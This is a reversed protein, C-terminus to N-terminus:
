RSFSATGTNGHNDTVTITYNGPDSVTLSYTTVPVGDRGMITEYTTTVNPSISVISDDSDDTVVISSDTIDEDVIPPDAAGDPVLANRMRLAGTLAGRDGPTDEAFDFAEPVGYSIEGSVTDGDVTTDIVMEDFAVVDFEATELSYPVTDGAGDVHKGEIRFKYTGTEFEHLPEWRVVWEDLGDDSARIRTAMVPERNTYPQFNDYIVDSEGEGDIRVLTVLPTQPAEAGAVGGIWSFEVQDLREITAPPESTMEPNTEDDASVDFTISDDRTYEAPYVPEIGLEEDPNKLNNWADVARQVLYDGFKWGWPTLSAEYGGQLYSHAYEPYDEPAQEYRFGDYTPAGGRVKTPTLYLLHDNAYAFTWFTAPDISTEEALVRTMEWGLDMTLEGPATLLQLGDFDVATIQSRTLPTPQQGYLLFKLNICGIDELDLFVDYGDASWGDGGCQIAGNSFEGGLGLVSEPSGYEGPEYGIADYTIPFRYAKASFDVDSDTEMDLVTEFAKDAVVYGARERTHPFSHGQSGTAPSMSGSNQSFFLAPVYTGFEQSLATELGDEAGGLVDDTAYDSSNDTGHAGYSFIVAKPTGEDDDIRILLLRNDDFPPTETWRDRGVTDDTDFGEVIEWGLSASERDDLATMAANTISEVLWDEAPQAFDGAGLIGLPIQTETPLRWYRAPGSHTHTSSIILSDRWDEGTEEQLRRAVREHTFFTTFIIPARILLIRREGNDLAIAQAYQGNFSGISASLSNTYKGSVGGARSGYGGLPLGIPYHLLAEGYGAELPKKADGGAPEGFTGTFEICRGFDSCTRGETCDADSVCTPRCYGDICAAFRGLDPDIAELDEECSSSKLSECEPAADCAGDVCIESAACEDHIECGDDSDTDSGSDVDITDGGDEEVDPGSNNPDDDCATFAICCFSLFIATSIQRLPYARHAQM